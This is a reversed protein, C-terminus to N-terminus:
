ILSHPIKKKFFTVFFTILSSAVMSSILVLTFMVLLMIFSKNGEIKLLKSFVAIFFPHILYFYFSINLKLLKDIKLPHYLLTSSLSLAFLMIIPSMSTTALSINYTNSYIYVSSGIALLLTTLVILISLIFSAKKERGYIALYIGLVFYFIWNLLNYESIKIIQLIGLIQSIIQTILSILLVLKGKSRVLKSIIPFILYCMFLIVIFYLHYYSKGIIITLIGKITLISSVQRTFVIYYFLSATLFMPLIKKSRGIIFPLYGQEDKKSVILGYGSALLFAPVSFRAAQNFSLAWYNMQDADTVLFLTSVHIMVVAIMSFFKLKDWNIRDNM